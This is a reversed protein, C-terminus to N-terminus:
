SLRQSWHGEGFAYKVSGEAYTECVDFGNSSLLKHAQDVRRGIGDAGDANTYYVFKIVGVFRGDSM